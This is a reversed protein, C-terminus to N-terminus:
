DVIEQIKFQCDLHRINFYDYDEKRYSRNNAMGKSIQAHFKTTPKLLQM